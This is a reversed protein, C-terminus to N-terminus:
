YRRRNRRASAAARKRAKRKVTSVVITVVTILVIVAVFIILFKTLAEQQELKKLYQKYETVALSYGEILDIATASPDTVNDYNAFFDTMAAKADTIKYYVSDNKNEKREEIPQRYLEMLSKVNGPVEYLPPVIEPDVDKGSTQEYAYAISLAKADENAKCMIELGMPFGNSDTGMPVTAAPYGCSPSLLYANSYYENDSKGSKQISNQMTPYIIADLEYRSFFGDVHAKVQECRKKGNKLSAETISSVSNYSGDYGALLYSADALQSFKRVTGTTGKIYENFWPEFTWASYGMKVMYNVDDTVVGELWIVTAGQEEFKQAVAEMLAVTDDNQYKLIPITSGKKSVSYVLEKPIGVTLGNLSANALEKTYKTSDGELAGLLLSCDYVNSAIPGATDRYHDYPVIGDLSLLSYTPRIAVVGNASAPTRLSSNTDTGLALPAFNASIGVCSGSSSGYASYETNFSNYVVGFSSSSEYATMAFYSMNTKAIVIAGQDLIAQVVPANEKPYNDSMMKSGATTPLGKVDINDKVLVPLGFIESSRVRGNAIFEEDKAKAENLANENITIIANYQDGYAYIRDLYLKMITYYTLYGDDVAQQLQSVSMDFIDVPAKSNAASAATIFVSFSVIITVTFIAIRKFVSM